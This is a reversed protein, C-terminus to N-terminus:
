TTVEMNGGGGGGEWTVGGGGESIVGGGGEWTVRRGSRGM